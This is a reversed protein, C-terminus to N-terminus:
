AAVSSHCWLKTGPRWARRLSTATSAAPADSASAHNSSPPVFHSAPRTFWFVSPYRLHRRARDWTFGRHRNSQLFLHLLILERQNLKGLVRLRATGDGQQEVGRARHLALADGLQVSPELLEVRRQLGIGQGRQANFQRHDALPLFYVLLM